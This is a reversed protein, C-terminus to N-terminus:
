KKPTTTGMMQCMCRERGTAASQARRCGQCAPFHVYESNVDGFCPKTVGTTRIAAAAAVLPYLTRAKPPTCPRTTMGLPRTRARASHIAGPPPVRSDAPPDGLDGGGM